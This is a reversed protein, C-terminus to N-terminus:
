NSLPSMAPRGLNARRNGKTIARDVRGRNGGPDLPSAWPKLACSGASVMAGSARAGLRTKRSADLLWLPCCMRVPSFCRKIRGPVLVNGAGNAFPRATHSIQSASVGASAFCVPARVSEAVPPPPCEREMGALELNISRCRDQLLRIRTPSWPEDGLQPM